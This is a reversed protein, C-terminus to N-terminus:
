SFQKFGSKVERQPNGVGRGCQFFLILIGDCLGQFGCGWCTMCSVALFFENSLLRKAFNFFDSSHVILHQRASAARRQPPPRPLALRFPRVHRQYTRRPLLSYLIRLVRQYLPTPIPYTRSIQIMDFWRMANEDSGDVAKLTGNDPRITTKPPLSRMRLLM